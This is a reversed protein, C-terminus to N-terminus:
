WDLVTPCFFPMDARSQRQVNNRKQTRTSLSAEQVARVRMLHEPEVGELRLLNLLMNYGLHFQSQLRDSAGKIITKAATPEM